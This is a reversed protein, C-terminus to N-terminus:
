QEADHSYDSNYSVMILQDIICDHRKVYIIHIRVSCPLSYLHEKIYICIYDFHQVMTILDYEIDFSKIWFSVYLSASVTKIHLM